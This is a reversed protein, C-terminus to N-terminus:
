PIDGAFAAARAVMRWARGHRRDVRRAGAGAVLAGDAASPAAARVKRDRARDGQATGAACGRAALAARLATRMAVRQGHLGACAPCASLHGVMEAATVADLEDDIYGDLMRLALACNM